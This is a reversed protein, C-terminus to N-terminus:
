LLAALAADNEAPLGVTVRVGGAHPFPRALVGQAEFRELLEDADGHAFLFNSQSPLFSVGGARLAEQMREREAVIVAIREAAVAEGAPSFAAIVAAEAVSNLAFGVSTRRLAEAIRPSAAAYGARIGALGHSKSLTRLIVLNPFEDLLATTAELPEVTVFERYAEDLVVLVTSPVDRLFSRIGDADVFGGTPNNPNCLYAIRTEPTIAAAMAAVDMAGDEALAVPTSQAGALALAAPYAEFSPWCYVGHVGPECVLRALGHLLSGSGNDIAIREVDLGMADAVAARAATRHYDPYRHTSRAAKEMADVIVPAPEWPMENQSLRIPPLSVRAPRNPAALMKDIVSRFELTM